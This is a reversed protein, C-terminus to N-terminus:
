QDASIGHSAGGVAPAAESEKIDAKVSDDLASQLQQIMDPPIEREAEKAQVDAYEAAEQLQHAFLRMQQVFANTASGPAKKLVLEAERERHTAMDHLERAEERWYFMRDSSRMQSTTQTVVPVTSPTTSPAPGRTTCAPSYGLVACLTISYMGTPKM